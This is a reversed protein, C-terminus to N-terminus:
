EGKLVKRLVRLEADTFQREEDDADCEQELIFEIAKELVQEETFQTTAEFITLSDELEIVMQLTNQQEKIIHEFVDPTVTGYSSTQVFFSYIGRQNMDEQLYVEQLYPRQPDKRILVTVSSGSDHQLVELTYGYEAMSENFAEVNDAINWLAGKTFKM